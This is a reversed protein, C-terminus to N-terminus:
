KQPVFNNDDDYYGLQGSEHVILEKESEAEEVVVPQEPAKAVAEPAKAVSEKKDIKKAM